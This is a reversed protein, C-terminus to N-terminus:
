RQTPVSCPTPTSPPCVGPGDDPDDDDLDIAVGAEDDAAGGGGGGEDDLEFDTIREALAVMDHFVDSLEAADADLFVKIEGEKEQTQM